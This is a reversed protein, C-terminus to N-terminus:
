SHERLASVQRRRIRIPMARAFPSTRIGLKSIGLLILIRLDFDSSLVSFEEQSRSQRRAAEDKSEASQISCDNLAEYEALVASAGDINLFLKKLM